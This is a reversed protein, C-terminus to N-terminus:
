AREKILQVLDGVRELRGIESSSFKIKFAKQVTMLLRVHTLSDWGEVDQATLEPTVQISDEDFVDQFIHNLRGYIQPEDM